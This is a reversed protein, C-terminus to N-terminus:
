PLNYPKLIYGENFETTFAYVNIGTPVNFSSCKCRQTKTESTPAQTNYTLINVMIPQTSQNQLVANVILSPLCQLMTNRLYVKRLWKIADTAHSSNGATEM